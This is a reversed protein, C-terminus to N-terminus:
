TEVGQLPAQMIATPQTKALSCCRRNCPVRAAEVFPASRISSPQFCYSFSKHFLTVSLRLRTILDGTATDNILISSWESFSEAPTGQYIQALTMATAQPPTPPMHSTEQCLLMPRSVKQVGACTRM